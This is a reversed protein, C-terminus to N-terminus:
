RARRPARPRSRRFHRSPMEVAVRRAADTLRRPGIPTSCNSLGAGGHRLDACRRLLDAGGDQRQGALELAHRVRAEEDGLPFRHESRGSACIRSWISISGTASGTTPRRSRRSRRRPAAPPQRRTRHRRRAAPGARPRVTTPMSRNRAGARHRLHRAEVQAQPRRAHRGEAGGSRRRRAHRNRGRRHDSPNSWGTANRRGARRRHVTRLPVGFHARRRSPAGVEDAKIDITALAALSQRRWSRARCSDSRDARHGRRRRRRARLRRGCGADKSSLATRARAARDARQRAGQRRRLVLPIARRPSGPRMRRRARDQRRDLLAMM